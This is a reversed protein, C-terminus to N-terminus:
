RVGVVGDVLNVLSNRIEGFVHQADAGYTRVSAPDVRIVTM